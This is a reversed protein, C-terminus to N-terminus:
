KNDNEKIINFKEAIEVASMLDFLSYELDDVVQCAAEDPIYKSITEIASEIAQRAISTKITFNTKDEIEM